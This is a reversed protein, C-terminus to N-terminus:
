ASALNTAALQRDERRNRIASRRESKGRWPRLPSLRIRSGSELVGYVTKGDHSKVRGAVTHMREAKDNTFQTKFGFEGHQDRM